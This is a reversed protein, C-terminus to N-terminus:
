AGGRDIGDGPVAKRRGFVIAPVSPWVRITAFLIVLAKLFTGADYSLDSVMSANRAGMDLWVFFLSSPLCMAPDLGALMAAGIANWGLGGSMGRIARGESALVLCAGALGHLSGSMVLVRAPLLPGALGVSRAFAPNRGFTTEAFGRRTCLMRFSVAAVVALAIGVTATLAAPPALRAFRFASAIAPTAVLYSEVDRFPSAIGWDILPIVAQSSLFTVLLVDTGRRTAALAAPGAVLIGGSAGAALALVSAFPAPMSPFSLAALAASFAGAYVQGEGGLNYQGSRFAWAVGVACISLTACRELATLASSVSSFPGRVFAVLAAAPEGSALTGYLAFFAVVTAVSLAFRKAFSAIGTGPRM